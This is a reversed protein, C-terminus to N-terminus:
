AVKNMCNTCNHFTSSMQAAILSGAGALRLEFDVGVPLEGGVTPCGLLM